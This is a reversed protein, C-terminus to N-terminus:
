RFRPLLAADLTLSVPDGADVAVAITVTGGPAFASLPFVVYGAHLNATVGLRTTIPRVVLQNAVPAVDQGDRRLTVGTVDPADVRAPAVVIIAVPNFALPGIPQGRRLLEILSKRYAAYPSFLHIETPSDSISIPDTLVDGWRERVKADLTRVAAELDGGSGTVADAALAKLASGDIAAPPAQALAAGGPPRAAVAVLVAGCALLTVLQRM